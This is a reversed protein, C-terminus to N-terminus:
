IHTSAWVAHMYHTYPCRTKFFIQIKYKFIVSKRIMLELTDWLVRKMAISACAIHLCYATRQLFLFVPFQTVDKLGEM